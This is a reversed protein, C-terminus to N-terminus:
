ALVSSHGYRLAGHAIPAQQELGAPSGNPCLKGNRLEFETDTQSHIVKVIYGDEALGRSLAEAAAFGNALYVAGPLSPSRWLYLYFSDPTRSPGMAIGIPASM